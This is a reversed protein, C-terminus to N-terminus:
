QLQVKLVNSIKLGRQKKVRQGEATIFVLEQWKYGIFCQPFQWNQILALLRSNSWSIFVVTRLCSVTPQDCSSRLRIILRILTEVWKNKTEDAKTSCLCFMEFVSFSPQQKVTSSSSSVPSLWTTRIDLESSKTKTITKRKLGNVLPKFLIISM